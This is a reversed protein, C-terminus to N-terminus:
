RRNPKPYNVPPLDRRVVEYPHYQLPCYCFHTQHLLIQVLSQPLLKCLINESHPLPCLCGCVAMGYRFIMENPFVEM